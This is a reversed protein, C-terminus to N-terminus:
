RQPVGPLSRLQGLFEGLNIPAFAEAVGADTKDEIGQRCTIGAVTVDGESALGMNDLRASPVLPAQLTSGVWAHTLAEVDTPQLGISRWADVHAENRLLRLGTLRQFLRHLEDVPEAAALATRVLGDRAPSRELVARATVSVAHVTAVQDSWLDRAIQCTTAHVETAVKGLRPSPELANGRQSLYGGNIMEAFFRDLAEPPRYIYRRRVFRETLDDLLPVLNVLTGFTAPSLANCATLEHRQYRARTEDGIAWVLRDVEAAVSRMMLDSGDGVRQNGGDAASTM